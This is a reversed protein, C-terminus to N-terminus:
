GGHCWAQLRVKVRDLNCICGDRIWPQDSLNVCYMPCGTRNLVQQQVAQTVRQLTSLLPNDNGGPLINALNPGSSVVNAANGLVNAAGNVVNQIVDMMGQAQQLSRGAELGAEVVHHPLVALDAETLETLVLGKVPDFQTLRRGNAGSVTGALGVFNDVLGTTQNIVSGVGTWVPDVYKIAYFSGVHGMRAAYAWVAHAASVHCCFLSLFSLMVDADPLIL